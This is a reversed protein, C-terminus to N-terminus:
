DGGAVKINGWVLNHLRFGKSSRSGRGIVLECDFQVRDGIAPAAVQRYDPAFVIIGQISEGAPIVTLDGTWLREQPFFGRGTTKEGYMITEAISSPSITYGYVSVASFGRHESGKLVNGSADTLQSRMVDPHNLEGNAAFLLPEKLNTNAFEVVCRVGEVPRNYLTVKARRIDKLTVRLDGLDKTAIAATEVAADDTSLSSSNGQVGHILLQQIEKTKPFTARSAAAIEATDTAIAKVTLVVDTDLSTVTGTLIVDVGAFQGLKKATEPNVLGEASLKHEALVSKLNARDM